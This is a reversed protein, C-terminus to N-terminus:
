ALGEDPAGTSARLVTEVRRLVDDDGAARALWLAEDGMAKRTPSPPALAVINALCRAEAALLMTTRALELAEHAAARRVEDHTDPLPLEALTCLLETELHRADEERLMVRVKALEELAEAARSLDALARARVFALAARVPLSRQAPAERKWDQLAQESAALAEDRRATALLAKAAYVHWQACATPGLTAGWRQLVERGVDLAREFSGRRTWFARMVDLSERALDDFGAAEARARLAEVAAPAYPAADLDVLLRLRALESGLREAESRTHLADRSSLDALLTRVGDFDGLIRLARVRLRTRMLAPRPATIRLDEREALDLVQLAEAPLGLDLYISAAESAVMDVYRRASLPVLALLLQHLERLAALADGSRHLSLSRVLRATPWFGLWAMAVEVSDAGPPPVFSTDAALATRHRELLSLSSLSTLRLGRELMTPLPREWKMSRLADNAQEDQDAAASHHGRVRYVGATVTPNLFSEVTHALSRGSSSTRQWASFEGSAVAHDADALYQAYIRGEEDEFDDEGRVPVGAVFQFMAELVRLADRAKGRVTERALADKIDRLAVDLSGPTTSPPLLAFEGATLFVFVEARHAWLDPATDRLREQQALSDAWLVIRLSARATHERGVNLLTFVRSELAAERSSIGFSLVTGADGAAERAAIMESWPDRTGSLTGTMVRVDCRERLEAEVRARLSPSACVCFVVTPRRRVALLKTLRRLLREHPVQLADSM